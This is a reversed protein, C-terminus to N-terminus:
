WRNLVNGTLVELPFNEMEGLSFKACVSNRGYPTGYLAGNPALIGGFSFPSGSQGSLMYRNQYATTVPNIVEVGRRITTANIGVIDGTPVLALNYLSTGNSYQTKTDSGLNHCLYISRFGALWVAGSADLAACPAVDNDDRVPPTGVNTITHTAPDIIISYNNRAHGSYVRGDPLPVVGAFKQSDLGLSGFFNLTRAIPDIELVTAAGYPACYIKGNDALCGGRWKSVSKVASSIGAQESTIAGFESVTRAVPDIVLVSSAFAPIGYILGDPGLVGSFWAGSSSYGALASVDGFSSVADSATDISLVKTAIYPICCIVGNRGLVSTSYAQGTSATGTLDGIAPAYEHYYIELAAGTNRGITRNILELQRATRGTAALGAIGADLAAPQRIPYGFGDRNRLKTFM